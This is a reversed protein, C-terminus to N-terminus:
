HTFDMISEVRNSIVDKRGKHKAIGMTYEGLYVNMNANSLMM